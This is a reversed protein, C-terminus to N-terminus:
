WICLLFLWYHLWQNHTRHKLKALISKKHWGCLFQLRGFDFKAESTGIGGDLM